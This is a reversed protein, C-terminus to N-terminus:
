YDGWAGSSSASVVMRPGDAQRQDAISKLLTEYDRLKDKIPDLPRGDKILCDRTALIAILEHFQAPADPVDSDNVMDAVYYSYELHIEYISDPKPVLMLNNKEFYYNTPCGQGDTFLDRENPTIADLKLSPYGATTGQAIRELRIVQLFDSPLAYAKQAAVTNTKVCSSYYEKNATILRKQLERLGLNLRLNVVSTSFYGANPDDLWDLTLTRLQLLTM